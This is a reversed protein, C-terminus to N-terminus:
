YKITIAKTTILGKEILLQHQKEKITELIEKLETNGEDIWRYITSNTINLVEILGMVSPIVHGSKVWVDNDIYDHANQILEPTLLTPRGAPM